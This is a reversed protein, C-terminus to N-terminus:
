RRPGRRRVTALRTLHMENNQPGSGARARNGVASSIIRYKPWEPELVRRYPERPLLWAPLKAQLAGPVYDMSVGGTLQEDRKAVDEEWTGDEYQLQLEAGFPFPLPIRLEGDYSYWTGIVTRREREPPGHNIAVAEASPAVSVLVSRGRGGRVWVVPGSSSAWLGVIRRDDSTGM